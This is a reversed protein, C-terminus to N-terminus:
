DTVDDSCCPSARGRFAVVAHVAHSSPRIPAPGAKRAVAPSVQHLLAAARGVRRAHGCLDAPRGEHPRRPVGARAGACRAACQACPPQKAGKEVGTTRVLRRSVPVSAHGPWAPRTRSGMTYLGASMAFLSVAWACPMCATAAASQVAQIPGVSLLETHRLVALGLVVAQRALAAASSRARRARLVEHDKMGRVVIDDHGSRFVRIGPFGTIHHERCLGAQQVCDVQRVGPAASRGRCARQPPRGRRRGLWAHAPRVDAM